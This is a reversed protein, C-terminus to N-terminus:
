NTTNHTNNNNGHKTPDTHRPTGNGSGSDYHVSSSQRKKAKSLAATSTLIGVAVSQNTDNNNDLGAPKTKPFVLQPPKPGLLSPQHRPPPNPSAITTFSDLHLDFTGTTSDLLSQDPIVAGRENTTGGTPSNITAINHISGPGEPRANHVVRFSALASENTTTTTPGNRDRQHKEHPLPKTNIGSSILHQPQDTHPPLTQFTNHNTKSTSMGGYQNFEPNFINDCITTFEPAHHNPTFVLTPISAKTLFPSRLEVSAMFSAWVTGDQDLSNKFAECANPIKGLRRYLTGLLRYTHSLLSKFITPISSRNYCLDPYTISRVVSYDNYHNTNPWTFHTLSTSNTAAHDLHHNPHPQSNDLLERVAPALQALISDARDYERLHIHCVARCYLIEESPPQDVLVLLARQHEGQAIYVRALQIYAPIQTTIHSSTIRTHDVLLQALTQASDYDFHHLSSHIASTYYEEM